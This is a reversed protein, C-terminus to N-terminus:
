FGLPAMAIASVDMSMLRSLARREMQSNNHSCQLVTLYGREEAVLEITSVLESYFADIISPVVIGIAKAHGRTLSSAFFNPTYNFKRIGEEILKRTKPRVADPDNFYRSVTPRSLGVLRAFEEMNQVKMGAM